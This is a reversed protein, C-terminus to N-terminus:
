NDTKPQRLSIIRGVVYIIFGIVAMVFSVTEFIPPLMGRKWFFMITLACLLVIFGAVRLRLSKKLPDHGEKKQVPETLFSLDNEKPEQNEM